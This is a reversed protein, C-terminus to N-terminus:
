QRTLNMYCKLAQEAGAQKGMIFICLYDLIIITNFSYWQEIV